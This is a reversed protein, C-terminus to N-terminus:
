HGHTSPSRTQKTSPRPVFTAITRTTDSMNGASDVAAIAFSRHDHRKLEIRLRLTTSALTRTRKGNVILAYAHVKSRDVPPRWSLTLLRGNVTAKFDRPRGPPTRDLTFTSTVSWASDNGAADESRVRWFYVGDELVSADPMWSATAGAAVSASWGSLVVNACDPDACLQFQLAGTDGPDSSVFTGALHPQNM